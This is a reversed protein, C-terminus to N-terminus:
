RSVKMLCRNIKKLVVNYWRSDVQDAGDGAGDDVRAPRSNSRQPQQPTASLTHVYTTYM